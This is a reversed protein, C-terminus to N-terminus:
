SYLQVSLGCKIGKKGFRAIARDKNQDKKSALCDTLVTVNFGTKIAGRVSASVCGESYLGAIYVSHIGRKQLFDPLRPNTFANGQHKSFYNNNVVHLRKDLKAGKSGRVAAFNRFLNAPDWRSFENGIYIIETGSGQMHDILKNLSDIMASAQSASVPMRAHEGTFDEQVDLILIAEKDL